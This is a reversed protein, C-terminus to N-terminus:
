CLSIPYSLTAYIVYDLFFLTRCVFSLIPYLYIPKVWLSALMPGQRWQQQLPM